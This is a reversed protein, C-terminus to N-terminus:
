APTSVSTNRSAMAEPIQGGSADDVLYPRQGRARLIGIGALLEFCYPKRAADITHGLAVHGGVQPADHFGM